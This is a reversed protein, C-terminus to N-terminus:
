SAHGGCVYMCVYMCVHMCVHVCMCLDHVCQVFVTISCHVRLLELGHKLLTIGQQPVVRSDSIKKFKIIDIQGVVSNTAHLHADDYKQKSSEFFTHQRRYSLLGTRVYLLASVHVCLVDDYEQKSSGPFTHWRQDSVYAGMSVYICVYICVEYIM